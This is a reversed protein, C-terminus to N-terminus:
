NIKEPNPKLRAIIPYKVTQKPQLSTFDRKQNYKKLLWLPIQFENFCLNWVSDGNKVKYTDFGQIVFSEFFDEEIEKHFEYRREEFEEITKKGMPIKIKQDISIHKGYKLNNLKRIKQTPINLWTAYHGLTEEAEVKILGIKLTEKQYTKLVKLNSTVINPNISAEDLVQKALPKKVPPTLDQKKLKKKAL